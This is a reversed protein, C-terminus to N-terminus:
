VWITLFLGGKGVEKRYCRFLPWPSKLFYFPLLLLTTRLSPGAGPPLASDRLHCTPPVGLNLGGLGAGPSVNSTPLLFVHSARLRPDSSPTPLSTSLSAERKRM